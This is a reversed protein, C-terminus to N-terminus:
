GRTYLAHAEQLRRWHLPRREWTGWRHAYLQGPVAFQGAGESSCGDTFLYVVNV